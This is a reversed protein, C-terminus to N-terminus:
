IQRQIVFKHNLDGVAYAAVSHSGFGSFYTMIQPM